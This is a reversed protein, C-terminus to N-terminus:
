NRRLWLWCNLWFAEDRNARWMWRRKGTEKLEHKHRFPFGFLLLETESPVHKMVKEDRDWGVESGSWEPSCCVGFDSALIFNNHVYFEGARRRCSSQTDHWYFDIRWPVLVLAAFHIPACCSAPRISDFAMSSFYFFNRGSAVKGKIIPFSTPLKSSELNKEGELM